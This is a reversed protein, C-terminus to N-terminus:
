LSTGSQQKPGHEAERQETSGIRVPGPLFDIIFKCWCEEVSGRYIQRATRSAMWMDANAHWIDDNPPPLRLAIQIGWAHAMGLEILTGYADASEIYAFVFDAARLRHLNINFIRARWKPLPDDMYSDILCGKGIAGHRGAGHGCGHDCSVFFPGAYIYNGCDLAFSSNFLDGEPGGAIAGRLGPVLSHRWDNKGIKGALYIRPKPRRPLPETKGLSRITPL